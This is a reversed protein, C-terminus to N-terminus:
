VRAMRPTVTSPSVKMLVFSYSYYGGFEKDQSNELWFPLCNERLEKEYRSAIQKFNVNVM